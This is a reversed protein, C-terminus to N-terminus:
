LTEDLFSLDIDMTEAGDDWLTSTSPITSIESASTEPAGAAAARFKAYQVQQPFEVVTFRRKLPDLDEKRPFCQDLTYNSLVIIKLPRLRTMLGGKIEGPFPYRDAWKKLAQATLGNDPSWEEIAVVSEHKYGDWWKNIGKAFHDPYLEWLLRSKGSGSPGVWWEHLLVGDLPVVDPAYLSELRPKLQVYAHPDNSKIWELDGAEAHDIISKWRAANAQGGRKRAEERSTPLTGVEFYNGEKSCYAFNEQPTGNAIAVYAGKLKNSIGVRTQKTDFYLYGQLHPTGLEGCERGAIIYRAGLENRRLSEIAEDNYNNITFVWARAQPSKMAFTRITAIRPRTASPALLARNNGLIAVPKQNRGSIVEVRGRM